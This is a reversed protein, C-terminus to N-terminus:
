GKVCVVQRLTHVIEVLDTQAAMVQDIPKYAAPTEDIVEADKRCEVGETMRVHDEVTFRRRAENRSMARGAGHSCSHFSEANGKGRVIYSRAGMSGPIIGLDGERARVAGKRTILVNQGYHSERAVYNHHCNVVMAEAEFPPVEGSRRVAGIIQEMMLDRNRRAYDQAWEVAEVYDGFHETGEPFYALDADPLNIFFRRMDNKALEIFYNGMRNGVGRSGSHLMFWVRDAEDLCVEIFHNGTGLTGLHNAHNGRDLKPHKALIADYRPKLEAAWVESNREPINHWAGRDGAGGHNTRGHPVAAEVASRIGKLNDPLHRAELSTQVAMMGCGIDVGVAAPIIAGKTPIVSGVTAGIGWHVDPMAAIWKYIFPLRAANALQKRAEEEVPVGKTWAKVPVGNETEMLNYEPMKM